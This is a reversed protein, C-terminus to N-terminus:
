NHIVIPRVQLIYLQRGAIAWEIDLPRGFRSELTLFQQVIRGLDLGAQPLGATRRKEELIDGTLRDVFVRDHSGSGNTISENSGAKMEIIVSNRVGTRHDLTLCVGACDAAIMRQVIISGRYSTGSKGVRNCQVFERLAMAVQERDINLLSRFDGASSGSERDECVASSRLALKGDTPLGIREVARRIAQKTQSTVGRQVVRRVGDYDLVLYEPVSFGMSRVVGLNYAKPGIVEVSDVPPTPLEARPVRSKEGVIKVIGHNADVDVIDGDRV